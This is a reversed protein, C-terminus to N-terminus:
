KENAILISNKKIQKLLNKENKDLEKGQKKFISVYIDSVVKPDTTSIDVTPIKNKLIDDLVKEEDKNFKIKSKVKAIDSLSMAKEEFVTPYKDSSIVIIEEELPISVLDTGVSQQSYYISTGVIILILGTLIIIQKM